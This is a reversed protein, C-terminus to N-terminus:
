EIVNGREMMYSHMLCTIHKRLSSKKFGHIYESYLWYKADEKGEVILVTGDGSLRGYEEIVEREEFPAFSAIYEEHAQIREASTITPKAKNKAIANRSRKLYNNRIKDKDREFEAKTGIFFFATVAGIFFVEDDPAIELRDKLKM